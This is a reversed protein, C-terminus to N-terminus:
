SAVPVPEVAEAPARGPPDALLARYDEICLERLLAAYFTSSVQRTAGTEIKAIYSRDKGLAAALDAQTRGRSERLVRLAFGQVDVTTTTPM